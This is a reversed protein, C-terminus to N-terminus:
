RGRIRQHLGLAHLEGNGRDNPHRPRTRRAFRGVNRRVRNRQVRQFSERTQRQPASDRDPKAFRGAFRAAHLLLDPNLPTRLRSTHALVLFMDSMPASCFWKHGTLLYAEGVPTREAFVARTLNARVDSGGQKETMAMGCIASRKEEIARLLPDYECAALKPEWARRAAPAHAAGSRRRVDHLDPLRTRSRGTGVRLVERRSRHARRSRRESWPAAHLGNRVAVRMLEHYSPHFEVEDIRNGFRDHTRLQPPHENALRGWEQATESGALLGLTELSEFASAAGQAALTQVLARDSRFVNYDTLPPPQNLVDHTRQMASVRNRAVSDGKAAGCADFRRHLALLAVAAFALYTDRYATVDSLANGMIGGALSGGVIQGIILFQSLLGIATARTRETTENTVIYRTPAGLLAGFGVGAVIM